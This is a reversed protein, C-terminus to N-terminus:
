APYHTLRATKLQVANDPDPILSLIIPPPPPPPPDSGSGGAPEGKKVIKPQFNRHM